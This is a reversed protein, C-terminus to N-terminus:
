GERGWRGERENRRAREDDWGAGEVGYGGPESRRRPRPAYYGEYDDKKDKKDKSSSDSNSNSNSNSKGGFLKKGLSSWYSERHKRVYCKRKADIHTM